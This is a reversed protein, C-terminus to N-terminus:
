GAVDESVASQALENPKRLTENTSFKIFKIKFTMDNTKSNLEKEIKQFHKILYALKPFRDLLLVYIVHVISCSITCPNHLLFNKGCITGM